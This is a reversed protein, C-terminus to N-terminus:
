IEYAKNAGNSGNTGNNNERGFNKLGTPLSKRRFFSDKHLYSEQATYDACSYTILM